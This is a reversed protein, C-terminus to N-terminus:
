SCIISLAAYREVRVTHKTILIKEVKAIAVVIAHALCNTQANVHMISKKLRTVTDLQRRKTKVGGFGVPM